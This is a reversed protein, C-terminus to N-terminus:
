EEGLMKFTKLGLIFNSEGENWAKEFLEKMRKSEVINSGHTEYIEYLEDDFKTENINFWEDFTM